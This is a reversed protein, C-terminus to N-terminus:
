RGAVPSALYSTSSGGFNSTRPRLVAAVGHHAAAIPERAPHPNYM